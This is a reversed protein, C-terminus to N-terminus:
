NGQRGSYFAWDASMLQRVEQASSSHWYAHYIQKPSTNGSHILGVYFQNDELSAVSKHHHSWLFGNDEGVSVDPFLNGKWFDKRYCLTSGAVWPLGGEPYVYQWARNSLADYYFLRDLGCLDAQRGLLGAVQYTLRWDAMWDDDDWHAIIDGGAEQCALNRKAGVSQRQTLRIYRIRPDRLILDAVADTGDDVVILERDAYDQRLFYRIAQPVFARRNFTPMICSVFPARGPVTSRSRM